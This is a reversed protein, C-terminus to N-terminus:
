CFSGKWWFCNMDFSFFSFFFLISNILVGYLLSSRRVCNTTTTKNKQCIFIWFRVLFANQCFCFFKFYFTSLFGYCALSGLLFFCIFFSLYVFMFLPFVGPVRRFQWLPSRLTPPMAYYVYPSMVRSLFSAKPGAIFFFMEDRDNLFLLFCYKPRCFGFVCGHTVIKKPSRYKSVLFVVVMWM